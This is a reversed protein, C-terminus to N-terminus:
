ENVDEAFDVDIYGWLTNEEGEIYYIGCSPYCRFYRFILFVPQLHAVELAQM